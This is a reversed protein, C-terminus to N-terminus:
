MQLKKFLYYLLCQLPSKQAKRKLTCTRADRLPKEAPMSHPEIRMSISDRSDHSENLLHSTDQEKRKKEKNLFDYLNYHSIHCFLCAIKLFNFIQYM